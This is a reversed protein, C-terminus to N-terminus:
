GLNVIMTALDDLSAVEESDGAAWFDEILESRIALVCEGGDLDDTLGVRLKSRGDAGTITVTKSRALDYEVRGSAAAEATKCIDTITITTTTVGRFGRRGFRVPRFDARSEVYVEARRPARHKIYTVIQVDRGDVRASTTVTRENVETRVRGRAVAGQPTRLPETPFRIGKVELDRVQM